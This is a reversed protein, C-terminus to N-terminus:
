VEGVEDREKVEEVKEEKKEEDVRWGKEGRADATHM